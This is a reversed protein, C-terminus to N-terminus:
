RPDNTKEQEEPGTVSNYLTRVSNFTLRRSGRLANCVLHSAGNIWSGDPLEIRDDRFAGGMGRITEHEFSAEEWPLRGPCQPIYGELCCRGQQRKWMLWTRYRYEKKGAETMMNVVQRGRPGDPYRVIEPEHHIDKPKPFNM